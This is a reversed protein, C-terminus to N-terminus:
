VIVDEPNKWLGKPVTKKLYRIIMEDSKVQTEGVFKIKSGEWKAYVQTGMGLKEIIKGDTSLWKADLPEKDLFALVVKKDKATLAIAIIHKGLKKISAIARKM